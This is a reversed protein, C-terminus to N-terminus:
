EPSSSLYLRRVILSVTTISITIFISYTIHSILQQHNRLDTITMGIPIYLIFISLLSFWDDLRFTNKKIGSFLLYFVPVMFSLVSSIGAFDKITGTLTSYLIYWIPIYIKDGPIGLTLFSIASLVKLISIVRNMLQVFIDTGKLIANSM